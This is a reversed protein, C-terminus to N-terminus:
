QGLTETDLLLSWDTRSPDNAVIYLQQQSPDIDITACVLMKLMEGTTDASVGDIRAAASDASGGRARTSRANRGSRSSQRASLSAGKGILSSLAVENGHRDTAGTVVDDATVLRMSAPLRHVLVYGAKFTAADHKERQQRKRGCELCIKPRMRMDLSPNVVIQALPPEDVVPTSAAAAPTTATTTSNAASWVMDSVTDSVRRLFSKKQPEAVKDDAEVVVAASDGTATATITAAVDSKTENDLATFPAHKRDRPPLNLPPDLRYTPEIGPAGYWQALHKYVSAPMLLFRQERTHIPALSDLATYSTFFFISLSICCCCCCFSCFNFVFLSEGHCCLLSTADLPGPSEESDYDHVFERWRELWKEPVFYFDGAEGTTHSKRLVDLDTLRQGPGERQGRKFKHLQKRRERSVDDQTEAAAGCVTCDPDLVSVATGLAALGVDDILADWVRRPIRRRPAQSDPAKHTCQLESTFTEGSRVAREVQSLQQDDQQVAAAAAAENSQEQALAYALAADRDLQSSADSPVIPNPPIQNLVVVDDDTTTTDAAADTTTITTNTNTTNTTNTTTAMSSSPTAQIENTNNVDNHPTSTTAVVSTSADLQMADADSAAADATDHPSPDNARAAKVVNQARTDAEREQEVSRQLPLPRKAVTRKDARWRNLMVANVWLDDDSPEPADDKNSSSRAPLLKVLRLHEVTTCARKHLEDCCQRLCLECIDVASLHRAEPLTPLPEARVARRHQELLALWGDREVRVLDAAAARPDVADHECLVRTQALCRRLLPDHAWARLYAREVFSWTDVAEVATSSRVPLLPAVAAFAAQRADHLEAAATDARAKDARECVLQANAADVESQLSPPLSPLSPAPRRGNRPVRQYLLLYAEKSKHQLARAFKTDPTVDDDDFRWWLRTYPDRARM